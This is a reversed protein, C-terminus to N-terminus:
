QDLVELVKSMINAKSGAREALLEGCSKCSINITTHSFLIAKKGCKACQVSLFSSRPKPIMMSERKM